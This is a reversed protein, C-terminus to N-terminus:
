PASNTTADLEMMKQAFAARAREQAAVSDMTASPPENSTQPATSNLPAPANTSDDPEPNFFGDYQKTKGFKKKERKREDDILKREYEADEAAAASIGPLRQEEKITHKAALEPTKL